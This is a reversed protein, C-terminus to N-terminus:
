FVFQTRLNWVYVNPNDDFNNPNGIIYFAPILSINNTIPLFYSAEIEYQTGGNGSGSALFRRGELVDFPVLYSIVALAGKKGLDPFGIGVQFSQANVNGDSLVPNKPNVETTGYAYRGFIGFNRTILWDFNAAFTHAIGYHVSGGFGDDIVGSIPEGTASGIGIGTLKGNQDFIPVNPDIKSYNYILRLNFRDSPSIQLEATTTSTAGFLGKGPNAATNFGFESPLFEDSEGLYAARFKVNKSIDWLAVVGSGRDITNLMTSGGSNFSTTGTLFFNFLNNDFYRYWNIRPGFVVRFNNGIPFTYFLERIIVENLGVNQGATQDLFPVGFSNYLGASVYANGPSNGNGAALQTVLLDKGSFSTELTLWVLNSFTVQPDKATQVIPANTFSNRGAPRIELAADVNSTEVKVNGDAFAGTVNFAALGRLKTTTSFQNAEVETVRAELADIRGRLTTLEVAFEEQLRRLRDLDEKSVGQPLAAILEQIRDLCSNLGAAFEYRTMARNGRYTRDPYGAICGYREVLSQLAQFAWDTPQVDRLQSVSTVQDISEDFNGKIESNISDPTLNINIEQAKVGSSYTLCGAIVVAVGFYKTTYFRNKNLKVAKSM